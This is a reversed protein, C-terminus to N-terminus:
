KVVTIKNIEKIIEQENDITARLFYIGTPVKKQTDDKLNWKIEYKGSEFMDELKNLVKVLTGKIDFVKLSVRSKVNLTFRIASHTKCPNPEIELTFRKADPTWREEIGPGTYKCVWVKWGGYVTPNSVMVEDKGDGNVDGATAVRMGTFGQGGVWADPSTDLLVGGLWLYARGSYRNEDPAGAFLDSAETRSTFGANCLSTGLGSTDERGTMWVDPISDMPEGGYLVYIKGPLYGYGNWFQTGTIAFDYDAQNRLFDVGDWGLEDGAEGSMAVDYITDMPNGGFYIYIRGKSGFNGAGVIVDEIGDGNVDGGGAVTTGFGGEGNLIVDPITDFNPGGLYISVAGWGGRARYDGVLLDSYGDGNVDGTGFSWGFEISGPPGTMRFDWITDMPNGGLFIYVRCHYDPETRSDIALDDFRDGNIDGIGRSRNFHWGWRMTDGAFVLDPITDFPNGGFFVYAKSVGPYPKSDGQVVIDSFGDGNFDGAGLDFGYVFFAPDVVGKQWIIELNHTEQAFGTLFLLSFLISIIVKSVKCKCNIIEFPTSRLFCFILVFIERLNEVMGQCNM